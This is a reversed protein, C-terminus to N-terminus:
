ITHLTFGRASSLALMAEGRDGASGPGCYTAMRLTALVRGGDAAAEAVLREATAKQAPTGRFNRFGRRTIKSQM